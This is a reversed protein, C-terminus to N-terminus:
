YVKWFVQCTGSYQASFPNPEANAWYGAAADVSESSAYQFRATAGHKKSPHHYFSWCHKYNSSDVYTGYDWTGGGPYERAAPKLSRAGAASSGDLTAWGGVVQGSADRIVGEALVTHAPRRTSDVNKAGAPAAGVISSSLALGAVVLASGFRGARKGSTIGHSYKLDPEGILSEPGWRGTRSFYEM